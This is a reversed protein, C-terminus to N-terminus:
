KHKYRTTRMNCLLELLNQIIPTKIKKQADRWFVERRKPNYGAREYELAQIIMEVKDIDNALIAELTTKDEFEQWLSLYRAKLENPLISLIEKIAAREQSKVKDVGMEKKVFYDYDGTLAEHADYLLSMRILKETNVNALDGVCMALIACRFSHDAVSEPKEIGVHSVWGARKIVKLKGILELFKLM